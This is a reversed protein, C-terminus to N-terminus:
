DFVRFGFLDIYSMAVSLYELADLPEMYYLVRAMYGALDIDKNIYKLLIKSIIGKDLCDFIFMPFESYNRDVSPFKIDIKQCEVGIEEWLEEYNKESMFLHYKRGKHVILQFIHSVQEADFKGIYKCLLADDFKDDDMLNIQHEFWRVDFSKKCLRMIRPVLYAAACATVNFGTEDSLKNGARIADITDQALKKVFRQTAKGPKVFYYAHLAASFSDELSHGEYGLRSLDAGCVRQIREITEKNNKNM